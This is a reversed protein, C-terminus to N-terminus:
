NLFSTLDLNLHKELTKIVVIDVIGGSVVLSKVKNCITFKVGNPTSSIADCLESIKDRTYNSEDMLFEYKEYISNLGFKSIVREDDPKLLMNRFYGKHNRWMTKLTEFTMYEIHGVEEWEFIDNTKVDKYSVNPVLSVVEIEESDEISEVIRKKASAKTTKKKVIEKEDVTDVADVAVANEATAAITDVTSKTTSKRAM